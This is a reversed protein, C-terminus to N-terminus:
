TMGDLLVGRAADSTKEVFGVAPVETHLAIATKCFSANRSIMRLLIHSSPPLMSPLLVSMLLLPLDRSFKM